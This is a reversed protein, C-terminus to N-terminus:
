KEIENLVVISKEGDSQVVKGAFSLSAKGKAKLLLPENRASLPFVVTERDGKLMAKIIRWNAYNLEYIGDSDAVLDIAGYSIFGHNLGNLMVRALRDKDNGGLLDNIGSKTEGYSAARMKYLHKQAYYDVVHADAQEEIRVPAIFNNIADAAQRSVDKTEKLAKEAIGKAFSLPTPPLKFHVEARAPQLLFFVFSMAAILISFASIAAKQNDSIRM